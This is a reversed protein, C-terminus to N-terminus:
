SLGRNQHPGTKDCLSLPPPSDEESYLLPLPPVPPRRRSSRGVLRPLRHGPLPAFSLPLPRRACSRAYPLRPPPRPRRSSAAARVLIAVGVTMARARWASSAQWSGERRKEEGKEAQDPQLARASPTFVILECRIKPVRRRAYPSRDPRRSGGKEVQQEGVALV